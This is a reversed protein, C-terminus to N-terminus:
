RAADRLDGSCTSQQSRGAPLGLAALLEPDDELRDRGWQAVALQSRAGCLLAVVTLQLLAVLPIPETVARSSARAPARTTSATRSGALAAAM